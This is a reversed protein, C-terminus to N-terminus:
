KRYLDNVTKGLPNATQGPQEVPPQPKYRDHNPSQRPTEAASQAYRRAIQNRYREEAEIREFRRKQTEGICLLIICTLLPSLLLALLAWGFGSRGRKSALTMTLIWLALWVIVVTLEM